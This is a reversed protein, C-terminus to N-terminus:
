DWRRTRESASMPSPISDDSGRYDVGTHNGFSLSHLPSTPTGGSSSRGSATGTDVDSVISLPARSDVRAEAPVSPADHVAAVASKQVATVEAHVGSAVVDDEDAVHHAVETAPSKIVGNGGDDRRSFDPLTRGIAQTPETDAPPSTTAPAVVDGVPVRCSIVDIVDAVSALDTFNMCVVKEEGRAAAATGGTVIPLAAKEKANDHEYVLLGSEVLQREEEDFTVIVTQLDRGRAHLDGLMQKMSLRSSDEGSATLVIMRALPADGRYHRRNDVFDLALEVSDWLRRTSRPPRTFGGGQTSGYERQTRELDFRGVSCVTTPRMTGDSSSFFITLRDKVGLLRCARSFFNMMDASMANGQAGHCDIVFIVDLALAKQASRSVDATSGQNAGGNVVDGHQGGAPGPGASEGSAGKVKSELGGLRHPPQGHGDQHQDYDHRQSATSHGTQLGQYGRGRSVGSGRGFGHGMRESGAIAMDAGAAHGTMQRPADGHGRSAVNTGRRISMSKDSEDCQSGRVFQAAMTGEQGRLRSRADVPRVDIQSKAGRGVRTCLIPSSSYSHQVTLTLEVHTMCRTYVM